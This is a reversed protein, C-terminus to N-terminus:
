DAHGIKFRRRKLKVTLFMYGSGMNEILEICCDITNDPKAITIDEPRYYDCLLKDIDPTPM